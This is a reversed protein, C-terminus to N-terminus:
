SVGIVRNRGQHKADYLRHDALDLTKQLTQVYDLQGESLEHVLLVETPSAVGVSVTIRLQPYETLNITSLTTRLRNLLDIAEHVNTDPLLLLFEEGGYRWVTDSRRVSQQLCRAVQVLLQDGVLHGYADNAQKFYDIDVIALCLSRNNRLMRDLEQEFLPQLTRRNLLGTLGDYQAMTIVNELHQQRQLAFTLVQTSQALVQRLMPNSLQQLDEPMCYPHADEPTTISTKFADTPLVLSTTSPRQQQLLVAYGLLGDNPDDHRFPLALLGDYRSLELPCCAYPVLRAPQQLWLAPRWPAQNLRGELWHLFPPAESGQLWTPANLYPNEVVQTLSDASAPQNMLVIFGDYSATTIAENYNGVWCAPLGQLWTDILEYRSTGAVMGAAWDHRQQTHQQQQKAQMAYVCSQLIHNMLAEQAQIRHRDGVVFPTQLTGEPTQSLSPEMSPFCPLSAFRHLVLRCLDNASSSDAQGLLPLPSTYDNYRQAARQPTNLTISEQPHGMWSYDLQELGSHWQPPLAKTLSDTCAFAEWRSVYPLEQFPSQPLFVHWYGGGLSNPLPFWLELANAVPLLTAIEQLLHKLTDSLVTGGLDSCLTQHWLTNLGQYLSEM